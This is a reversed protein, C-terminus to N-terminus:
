ASQKVPAVRATQRNALEEAQAATLYGSDDPHDVISLEPGNKRLMDPLNSMEEELMELTSALPDVVVGDVGLSFAMGPQAAQHLLRDRTKPSVMKCVRELRRDRVTKAETMAKQHLSFLMSAMQRKEPDKIKAIANLSMYMPPSEQKIPGKAAPNNPDAAPDPNDGLVNADAGGDTAALAKASALLGQVLSQLFEKGKGGGPVSIGHMELLHPILEEFSVDGAETDADPVGGEKKMEAAMPDGGEDGGEKKAEAEPEADESEDGDEINKLDDESLKVGTMMSFAIPFAPQGDEKLLGANPLDFGSAPLKAQPKALSLAMSISEFPQQEHIRPRTTLAVHSVVENWANGAGDVFSSIWPSVWRVSGNKIKNAIQDDKVNLVSMLRHVDHGNKNKVVDTEYRLVEGGNNRLLDAAIDAPNASSVRSDHELPLPIPIGAALMAQGQNFYHDIKDKTTDLVAPRGDAGIYVHKGTRIVEKRVEM